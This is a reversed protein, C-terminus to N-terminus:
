GVPGIGKCIPSRLRSVQVILLWDLNMAIPMTMAKPIPL